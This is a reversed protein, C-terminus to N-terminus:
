EGAYIDVTAESPQSNSVLIETLARGLDEESVVAFPHAQISDTGGSGLKFSVGIPGAVVRSTGIQSYPAEQTADVHAPLAHVSSDASASSVALLLVLSGFLIAPRLLVTYQRCPSRLLPGQRFPIMMSNTMTSSFTHCSVSMLNPGEETTKLIIPCM